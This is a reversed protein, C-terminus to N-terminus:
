SFIDNIIDDILEGYEPNDLANRLTEKDTFSMNEEIASKIINKDLFIVNHVFEPRKFVPTCKHLKSCNEVLVSKLEGALSVTGREWEDVTKYLDNIKSIWYVETIYKICGKKGISKAIAEGIFYKGFFLFNDDSENNKRCEICQGKEVKWAEYYDIEEPIGRIGTTNTLNVKQVIYGDNCRDNIIAEPIWNIGLCYYAFPKNNDVDNKPDIEYYESMYSKRKIRRHVELDIEGIDTKTFSSNPKDNVPLVELIGLIDLGANKLEKNLKIAKNKSDIGGEAYKKLEYDIIQYM